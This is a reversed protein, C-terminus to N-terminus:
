RGPSGLWKAIQGEMRKRAEPGTEVAKVRAIEAASWATRNYWGVQAGDGFDGAWAARTGKLPRGEVTDFTHDFAVVAQMGKGGPGHLDLLVETWVHIGEQKIKGKIELAGLLAGFAMERESCWGFTYIEGCRPHLYRPQEAALDGLYLAPLRDVDAWSKYKVFGRPPPLQMLLSSDPLHRLRHRPNPSTWHWFYVTELAGGRSCDVADSTTLLGHYFLLPMLRGQNEASTDPVKLSECLARYRPGLRIHASSANRSYSEKLFAVLPEAPLPGWSLTLIGVLPVYNLGRM